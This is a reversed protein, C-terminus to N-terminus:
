FPLDDNVAEESSIEADALADVSGEPKRDLMNLSTAVIEYVRRQVNNKDTFERSRIRGEVYIASGKRLFKEAIEALRNWLVINHWETQETRNGDRGKFYDTTALRLQAVMSGSELRRVDPDAGVYGILMVKNLGRM